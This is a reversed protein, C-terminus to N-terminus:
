PLAQDQVWHDPGLIMGMDEHISTLKMVQQAMVPVRLYKFPLCFM